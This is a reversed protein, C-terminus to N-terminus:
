WSCIDWYWLLSDSKEVITCQFRTGITHSERTFNSNICCDDYLTCKNDCHCLHFESTYRSMYECTGFVACTDRLTMLAIDDSSTTTIERGNTGSDVTKDEIEVHPSSPQRSEASNSNSSNFINRHTSTSLIYDMGETTTPSWSKNLSSRLMNRETSAFVLEKVADVPSRNM